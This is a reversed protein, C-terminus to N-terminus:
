IWINELSRSVPLVCPSANRNLNGVCRSCWLVTDPVKVLRSRAELDGWLLCAAKSGLCQTVGHAMFGFVHVPARSATTYVRIRSFSFWLVRSSRYHPYVARASLQVDDITDEM